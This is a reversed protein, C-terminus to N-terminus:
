GHLFSELPQPRRWFKWLDTRQVAYSWVQSFDALHLHIGAIRGSKLNELLPAFWQRDLRQLTEQWRAADQRLEARDLVDLVILHAGDAAASRWAAASDPLAHAEGGSALALGRALADQTWVGQFPLGAPPPLVGGGWPWISNVPWLGRQERELNVPHDHLLM